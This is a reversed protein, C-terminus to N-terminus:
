LVLLLGTLLIGLLIYLLTYKSKYEYFIEPLLEIFLIYLLSGCSIAVIISSALENMSYNLYYGIIALVFSLLGSLSVLTVSFVKSKNSNLFSKSMSFGMLLNHIFMVVAMVIGGVPVRSSNVNTFVIGLSFGEPINHISIAILFIFSSLLTSNSEVFMEHTHGHDHTKEEDDPSHYHHHTLKHLCEHLILFIVAVGFIILFPYLTNLFANETLGEFGELSHHFLEFFIIGIITGVVFNQIPKIIKTPMSFSFIALITGLFTALLTGVISFIYFYVTGM